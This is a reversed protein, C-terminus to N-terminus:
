CKDTNLKIEHLVDTVGVFVLIIVVCDTTSFLCLMANIHNVKLHIRTYM